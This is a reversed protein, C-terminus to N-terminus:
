LDMVWTDKLLALAYLSHLCVFAGRSVMHGKSVESEMLWKLHLGVILFTGVKGLLQGFELRM